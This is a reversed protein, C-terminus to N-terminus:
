KKKRQVLKINDLYVNGEWLSMFLSVEGLGPEMGRLSITYKQWMQGIELNLESRKQKFGPGTRLGIEKFAYPANLKSDARAFFELKDYPALDIPKLSDEGSLIRFEVTKWTESIDSTIRICREGEYVNREWADTVNVSRGGKEGDIKVSVKGSWKDDYLAYYDEQLSVYATLCLLVPFLLLLLSNKGQVFRNVSRFVGNM